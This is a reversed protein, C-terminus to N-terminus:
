FISSFNNLRHINSINNLYCEKSLSMVICKANLPNVSCYNCMKLFNSRCPNGSNRIHFNKFFKYSYVEMQDFKPRSINHYILMSNLYKLSPSLSAEMYCHFLSNSIFLSHRQKWTSNTIFDSKYTKLKHLSWILLNSHVNRHFM